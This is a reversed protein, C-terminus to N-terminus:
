KAAEQSAQIAAFLAKQKDRTMASFKCGYQAQCVADLNNKLQEPFQSFVAVPDLRGEAARKMAEAMTISEPQRPNEIADLIARFIEKQTREGLTLFRPVEFHNIGGFKKDIDEKEDSPTNRYAQESAKDVVSKLPAPLQSYVDLSSMTGALVKRIAEPITLQRSTYSPSYSYSSTQHSNSRLESM